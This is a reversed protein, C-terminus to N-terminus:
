EHVESSYLRYALLTTAAVTRSAGVREVPDEVVLGHQRDLLVGGVRV